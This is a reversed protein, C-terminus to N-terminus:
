NGYIEYSAGIVDGADTGYGNVTDVLTLNNGSRIWGGSRLALGNFFVTISDNSIPTGANFFNSFVENVGGTAVSEAQKTVGNVGIMDTVRVKVISNTSADFMPFYDSNVDVTTEATLAGIDMKVNVTDPSTTNVVKIGVSGVIALTDTSTSASLITSGDTVHVYSRTADSVVAGITTKKNSAGDFIMIEHEPAVTSLTALTGITVGIEPNAAVADGYLITAGEKGAETSAVISRQAYTNTATQVLLGSTSIGYPVNLDKFINELSRYEPVDANSADFFPMTDLLTVPTNIMGNRVFDFTIIKTVSNATTKVGVGGNLGATDGTSTAVVSSSDATITKFAFDGVVTNQVWELANTTDNYVLILTGTGDTPTLGSLTDTASAYVISNAAIGGHPFQIGDLVLHGTGKPNINLDINLDTGQAAITVADTAASNSVELYNVPTAVGVAQISIHGSSDRLATLYQWSADTTLGTSTLLQHTTGGRVALQNGTGGDNTLTVGDVAATVTYSNPGASLSIGSGAVVTPDTNDIKHWKGDAGYVIADNTQFTENAPLGSTTWSGGFNNTGGIANVVWWDGPQPNTPLTGANDASVNGKFTFTGAIGASRVWIATGTSADVLTWVTDTLTNIWMDGIKFVTGIAATDANDNDATPDVAATHVTTTQGAVETIANQVNTSTINTTTSPAFTVYQAALSGVGLNFAPGAGSVVVQGEATASAVSALDTHAGILVRGEPLTIAAAPVKSWDPSTGNSLLVTDIGGLSLNTGNGSANAVIMDGQANLKIQKSKIQAM